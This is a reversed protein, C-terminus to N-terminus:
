RIYGYLNLEQIKRKVEETSHAFDSISKYKLFIDKLPGDFETSDEKCVLPGITDKLGTLKRLITQRFAYDFAISRPWEKPAAKLYFSINKVSRYSVGRRSDLANLANNVEDFFQLENPNFEKIYSALNEERGNLLLSPLVLDDRIGFVRNQNDSEIGSLRQFSEMKLTILFSRDLLRDSLSNTTEDLNITGIFLVNDYIPIEAPFQDKNKCEVKDSYLRLRRQDPDLEMLSLFPAFYLEIPSLNMEDFLVIHMKDKEKSARVLFEVLGTSSPLYEQSSPNYFGLLDSPETYGPSIPLFLLSADEGTEKLGFYEAYTLPLRTKGTGTMGALITLAGTKLCTHFNYIDDLGYILGKKACYEQFNLLYKAEKSEEYGSEEESEEELSPAAEKSTVPAATTTTEVVKAEEKLKSAFLSLLASKELFVYDNVQAYQLPTKDNPGKFEEDSAYPFIIDGNRKMENISLSVDLPDFGEKLIYTIGSTGVPECEISYIEPNAFVYHPLGFVKVDWKPLNFPKHARMLKLNEDNISPITFYRKNTFDVKDVDYDGIFSASPLLVTGNRFYKEYRPSRYYYPKVFLLKGKLLKEYMEKQEVPSKSQYDYYNYPTFFNRYRSSYLHIDPLRFLEPHKLVIEPEESIPTMNIQTGESLFSTYQYLCLILNQSAEQPLFLINEENEKTNNINDM